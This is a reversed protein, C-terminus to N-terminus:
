NVACASLAIQGAGLIRRSARDQLFVVASLNERRWSKEIALKPEASFPQQKKALGILTISRAVGAHAMLRGRNEGRTVNSQLGNEVIALTVDADAAPGAIRVSITSPAGGCRLDVATKPTKAAASIAQLAQQSDSGVFGTKGDIIMQPTYVGEGRLAAGYQRQRETLVASSFPDTWGLQNWYDVHESLTIVAVGPIPQSQQLRSLLLDAPPCSSCGESTFLEVLVPTRPGEASAIAVSITMMWWIRM